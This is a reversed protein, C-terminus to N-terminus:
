SASAAARKTCEAWKRGTEAGLDCRLCRRAEEVATEESLGCEVEVFGKVRESVPKCPAAPRRAKALEEETVEVPSVYVSPRAIGRGTELDEGRLYRDISEAAKKGSAMADVITKPGTVVDGGAFVGGLNTACTDASAAIREGGLLGIGHGEGLFSVDPAEGIAVLLTDLPITFQSNEIPLPRRRGSRDPDGLEMCVCEIGVVRGEKTLVRSPAALFRMEIGEEATAEIEEEFAPMEARTRRYILSVEECNEIRRAVRAADVAANGGGIIGVRRGVEVDENLNVAKLFQMADLVGEADEGPIGLSRSRHAGAALFVARYSSRLEDFSIDEGIRTNTRIRVGTNEINKIDAELLEKPLRFEPIYAATAGGAVPLADFVTVDYGKRALDHGATLGAPGAGVIAVKEGDNRAKGAISYAGARLAHDTAVRKLARIAIPDGTKGAQCRAECPHHCVRACVSPLPNEKRIVEMAERFRRDAILSVYAPVETGIPCAYQCSPINLKWEGLREKQETTLEVPGLEMLCASFDDVREAYKAGESASIYEHRLRAPDIGIEELAIRTLRITEETLENARLYHCDGLHCGCVLVGDSGESFADMILKPHIRSSCTVRVERANPAFQLRSVGAMDAGAYGCWNCLFALIRPEFHAEPETLLHASDIEALLQSDSFHRLSIADSPCVANCAGCGHCLAVTVSSEKGQPTDELEIAGFQCVEECLGCGLCGVERVECVAGSSTFTDKSLITAARGASAQAQRITEDISKPFHATGCLFVGETACDVPRLKMHAELFFGDRSLPVRFLRSIARTDSSPVIAAALAVMDADIVLERGLVPDSVTVRLVSRDDEEVAEVLPKSEPEYRIFRVGKEAAERYYDEKLGYTRMDRFLVYLDMNPDRERLQLACKIAQSCCVRSCHPREEERCGVCLIMALASAKTLAGDRRQIRDELDLLTVVREDGGYLYETPQHEEAGTAIVTIGHKIERRQQSGNRTVATTFSGVYGSSDTVRSGTLVHVLPHGHVREILEALHGQVDLGELTRHIRRAMGGLQQEKEVLYVEFGSDALRLAATMGAVGGGVVLGRKDVPLELEALPRLQVARAVSMRVKDKAKQTAREKERSHVWSSHERINAMAFCYKNIGAERLTEQFLPEHTRPTCAAVVVRNLRQEIVREAILKTADASCAFLMEESHVVDELSASYDVVSSVDVVSGINAGCHCVFVGVRPEEDSIDREPPYMKERALEGRRGALLQGCLAAAASGSLVSEPIDMPGTFAGAAFIGKRSTHLPSSGDVKCFGHADTEIGLRESLEEIGRPPTMGVSLVVMEFDEEHVQGELSYRITLNGSEPAGNGMSVYSRIFRTGSLARARQYFQEFEKGHARIDNHFITAEIESDREKALIMQKIAYMCCVSSCYSNGGPNVQRSGVCQVWAIKKPPRGDSPRLVTGRYPGDANLIREFELATVVDDTRGYGYDARPKPDFPQYGPSLIVAGARVELRREKQSYDIAREQCVGKCIVCKKERFYLCADPDIYASKPVAQSFQVHIAKTSSLGQDYPNPVTVPCYLTCVGCGTCSDGVYTPKKRLTVTFSGPDGDIREVETNTVIEINPHRDCEVFKPSEICMSCDNTPFVKDLQAMHGGIAPAKDVLHVRFGSEALDLSAQIGSIGAGVIVVDAAAGRDRM